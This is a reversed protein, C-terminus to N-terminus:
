VVRRFFWSCRIVLSEIQIPNDAYKKLTSYPLSKGLLEFADNNIKFWLKSMLLLYLADEHNHKGYEFLHEIYETKQEIRSIALRDLWTKWIIDSVTSISKGCPL